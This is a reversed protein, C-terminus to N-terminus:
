NDCVEPYEEFIVSVKTIRNVEYSGPPGHFLVGRPPQVKFKEFVEPYMLPFLIMEKLSRIEKGLGGVSDFLVQM